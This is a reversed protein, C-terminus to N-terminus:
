TSETIYSCAYRKHLRMLQEAYRAAGQAMKVETAQGCAKCTITVQRVTRVLM